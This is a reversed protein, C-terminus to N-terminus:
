YVSISDKIKDFVAKGVIKKNLVDEVAQYPRGSIIKQATVPGVGSLAELESQSAININLKVAAAGAVQPTDTKSLSQEGTKPIYIKSGDILKQALNLYKSIYTQDADKSLGGAATIADEMRSSAELQYVGPKGVAGSVDVSIKKGVEVLSEKPYAKPSAKFLNSSVAGGIILVLGVLSLGLPLKYASSAKLSQKCSELLNNM